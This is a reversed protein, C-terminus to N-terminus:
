QLKKLKCLLGMWPLPLGRWLGLTLCGKWEMLGYITGSKGPVVGSGVGRLLVGRLSDLESRGVSSANLLGGGQFREGPTSGTPAGPVVGRRGGVELCEVPVTVEWSMRSKLGGSESWPLPLLGAVCLADSAPCIPGCPM